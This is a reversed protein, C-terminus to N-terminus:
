PSPVRQRKRCATRARRTQSRRVPPTASQGAGFARARLLGVREGRQFRLKARGVKTGLGAPLGGVAALIASPLRMKSSASSEEVPVM